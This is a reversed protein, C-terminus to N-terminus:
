SGGCVVAVIFTTLTASRESCTRSKRWKADSVGRQCYSLDEDGDDDHSEDSVHDGHACRWGDDVVHHEARNERQECEEEEERGSEVLGPAQVGREGGSEFSENNDEPETGGDSEGSLETDM